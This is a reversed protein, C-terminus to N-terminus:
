NEWSVKLRKYYFTKAFFVKYSDKEETNFGCIIKDHKTKRSRTKNRWKNLIRSCFINVSSQSSPVTSSIYCYALYVHDRGEVNVRIELNYEKMSLVKYIIFSHFHSFGEWSYSLKKCNSNQWNKMHSFSHYYKFSFSM